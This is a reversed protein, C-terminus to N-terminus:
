LDRFFINSLLLVRVTLTTKIILGTIIFSADFWMSDFCTPIKGNVKYLFFIFFQILKLKKKGNLMFGVWFRDKDGVM